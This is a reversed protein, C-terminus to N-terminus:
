LQDGRLKRFQKRAEILFISERYELIIKQYLEKAKEGQGLRNQYLKALYFIANDTLLNEPDELELVKLYYKEAAAYDRNWESIEAKKFYLDDKLSHEPYFYLISDLHNKAEAYKKQYALLEAKAFLEMPHATTDLGMNDMIFVGLEIANNSILESTAGKLVSLQTQAWDFDGIYYSLQANKFRALAGLPEDKMAKDVQSYYLTAEWVEDKMLYFDGLDLKSEAKLVHSVQPNAILDELLGIAKSYDNLYFAHLQAKQRLTKATNQNLGFENLFADYALDLDLLDAQEYNGKLIKNQRTELLEQKAILYYRSMNGKSLVYEYSEIAADFAEQANAERALKVIREGIENQRKDLARAQIFAAKFNGFQQYYWILIESFVTQNTKQVKTLLSTRLLEAYEETDLHMLLKSEIFEIADPREELYTIYVPIAEKAQNNNEYAAALEMSFAAKSKLLERGKEFTLIVYDWKNYRSFANAIELIQSNDAILDSVAGDFVRTAKKLDGQKQYLIGLDILLAHRAPFRKMASKVIKELEDFEKTQILSNYLYNYYVTSSPEAKHLAKFLEAAKEFEGTQFYEFALSQEQGRQALLMNAFLVLLLSFIFKPYLAKM